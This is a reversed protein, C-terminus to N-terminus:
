GDFTLCLWLVSKFKWQKEMVWVFKELKWSKEPGSICIKFERVKWLRDM